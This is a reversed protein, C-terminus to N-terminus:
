AVSGGRRPSHILTKILQRVPQPRAFLYGQGLDVGFQRLIEQQEETEIGEAVVTCEM